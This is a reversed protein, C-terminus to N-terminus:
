CACDCFLCVWGAKLLELKGAIERDESGKVVGPSEGKSPDNM